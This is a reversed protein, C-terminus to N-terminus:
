AEAAKALTAEERAVRVVPISRPPAEWTQEPKGLLLSDVVEVGQMVSHDMNSIEYKWAGFRGRSYVDNALLFPQIGALAGDRSLTPVPYFYEVDEVHTAVVRSIDEPELLGTAVLGEVTRDVITARDEPKYDSYSTETLLLTHGAPAIFPSYNSLFTARYFPANSEPFYTWCKSTECPKDVGVGVVLGHSHHLGEAEELLDGPVPRLRKLLEPIPMASILVDYGDDGGDALRLRKETLDIEVVERGLQLHSAITPVVREYLGGTGGHLPYKFRNNPGWSVEDRGHVVNGLVHKLDIVSVREAIWTKSMMELPHAWVKFNYPRMFHRAIGSGFVSEVWDAFSVAELPDRSQADVLGHLCELLVEPPLRHVNNQLPYPIWRDFMRIWSERMLLSFDDGLLRDVLRDFYEYHSFMVHGGIDYTFGAADTHSSALGGVHSNREYVAFNGHGLEQLRYAAGLGTPGAGIIAIRRNSATV